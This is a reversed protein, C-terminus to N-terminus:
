RMAAKQKRAVLARPEKFDGKHEHTEILDGPRMTVRIMADNSIANPGGYGCGLSHLVEPV